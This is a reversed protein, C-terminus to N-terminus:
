PQAEQNVDQIEPDSKIDTMVFEREESFRDWPHYALGHCFEYFEHSDMNQRLLIHVPYEYWSTKTGFYAKQQKMYLSPIGMSVFIRFLLAVISIALLIIFWYWLILFYYMNFLNNSLLCVTNHTEIDNNIGIKHVTCSVVTPFVECMPNNVAKDSQLYDTTDSGYSWFKGGLAHNFISMSLIVAVINAIEVLISRITFFFLGNSNKLKDYVMVAKKVDLEEDRRSRILISKLVGGELMEKWLTRPIKTFMISILLLFPLWIYYATLRHDEPLGKRNTSCDFHRGSYSTNSLKHMLKDSVYSTGHLWCFKQSYSDADSCVIAQGDLYNEGFIFIVGVVLFLFTWQHHLRAIFNDIILDDRKVLKRFDINPIPLGPM